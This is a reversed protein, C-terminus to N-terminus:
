MDLRKKVAAGPLCDDSTSSSDSLLKDVTECEFDKSLM